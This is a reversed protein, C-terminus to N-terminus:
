VTKSKYNRSIPKQDWLKLINWVYVIIRCLCGTIRNGYKVEQGNVGERCERGQDEQQGGCTEPCHTSAVVSGRLAWCPFARLFYMALLVELVALISIGPSFMRTVSCLLHMLADAQFSATNNRGLFGESVLSQLWMESVMESNTSMRLPVSFNTSSM